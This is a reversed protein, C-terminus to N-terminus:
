QAGREKRARGAVLALRNAFGKRLWGQRNHMDGMLVSIIIFRRASGKPLM